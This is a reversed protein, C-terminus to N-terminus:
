SRANLLGRTLLLLLISSFTVAAACYYLEDLSLCHEIMVVRICYSSAIESALRVDDRGVGEGSAPCTTKFFTEEEVLLLRGYVLLDHCEPNKAPGSM